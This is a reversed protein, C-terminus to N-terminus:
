QFDIPSDKVRCHADARVIKRKQQGLICTVCDACRAVLMDPIGQGFMHVCRYFDDSVMQIIEVHPLQSPIDELLRM